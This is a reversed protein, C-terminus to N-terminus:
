ISLPQNFMTESFSSESLKKQLSTMKEVCLNISVEDGLQEVEKLEAKLGSIAEKITLSSLEGLAFVLDEDRQRKPLEAFTEELKFLLESKIEPKVLNDLESFTEGTIDEIANQLISQERSELLANTVLLYTLLNERRSAVPNTKEAVEVSVHAAKATPANAKASEIRTLDLLIADKTTNLVEAM